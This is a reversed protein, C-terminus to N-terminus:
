QEDEELPVVLSFPEPLLPVGPASKLWLACGPVHCEGDEGAVCLDCLWIKYPRVKPEESM